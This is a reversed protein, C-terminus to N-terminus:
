KAERASRMGRADAGYLATPVIIGEYLCKKAKIWFGINSLVNMVARRAKYEENMRYVTDRECGEDAALQSGLYKFCDVEQRVHMGGVGGCESEVDGGRLVGYKRRMKRSHNFLM